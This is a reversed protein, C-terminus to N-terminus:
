LEEDLQKNVEQKYDEKSLLKLDVAKALLNLRHDKINAEYSACRLNDKDATSYNSYDKM